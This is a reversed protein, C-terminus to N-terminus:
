HLTSWSTGRSVAWYLASAAELAFLAGMCLLDANFEVAAALLGAGVERNVPRFYRWSLACMM